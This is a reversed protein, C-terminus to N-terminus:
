WMAPFEQTSKCRPKAYLVGAQKLHNMAIDIRRQKVDSFTAGDMNLAFYYTGSNNEVFGVYWGVTRGNAAQGGGTKAYIKYQGTDEVLMINKLLTVSREAVPLEGQYM